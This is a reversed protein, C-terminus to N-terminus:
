GVRVRLKEGLALFASTWEKAGADGQAARTAYGPYFDQLLKFFINQATSFEVLFPFAAALSAADGLAQLQEINDPQDFWKRALREVAGRMAFEITQADLSIGTRKTEDLLARVHDFDLTDAELERRLQSNLTFEAAIEFRRPPPIKLDAMFRMMPAYHDFLQRYSAEAEELAQNLILRLIRRQEDRFLLRLSFSGSGFGRDVVRLIEPLDGREFIEAIESCLAEYSQEGQFQRVGGSINHDGLHLVGFSVHESDLVIESRVIARGVALRMKGTSLLRYDTRTVGFCYISSEVPYPQFLSSIAYHAGVTELDVMAPKVFDEFIAKGDSPHALNSKAKALLDLFQSELGDGFVQQSLQLARSAYQIVQVTEIGSLEDFFWGCSTFMLLTHRQMELLKLANIRAADDLPRASEVSLFADISEPSRNLIVDIYKDRARWPDSFFERGKQEYQPALQDRLWDLSERLPARWQQKWGPHMGSNCGCDSRWRDVGHVCSWSTNDKIRVERFPPHRELFEGYNTMKAIGATEIYEMAYSLAMEGRKHHHGYTEGDTAIHVIQPWDRDDSFAEALRNALYEGKNLLGEFAVARSIPGDYFFLAMTRGSSLTIRYPMSPDISGESVDRWRTGGIRRASRAQSTALITFKIGHAALLDLSEFDVATEALWMGEPMRGFRQEFDRVGWVIQTEKDRHNALPMIMHNYVQAIASGHGSYLAQSMKDAALIAEYVEPSKDALWSLLTPGFNFSIKSYNNVIRIIRGQEDLIRSAANPGYCEATIRANWDHYPYASDQIEVAELWPNERPPQYFHGHICIYREDM